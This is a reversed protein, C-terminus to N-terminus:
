KEETSADYDFKCQKIFDGVQKNAYVGFADVLQGKTGDELEILYLAAMDSPDSAGEFRIISIIHAQQPRYYKEKHGMLYLGHSDVELDDKFGKSRLLTMTASLTSQKLNEFM